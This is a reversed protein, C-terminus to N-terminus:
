KERDSIPSPYVRLIDRKARFVAYLPPRHLSFLFRSRHTWSRMRLRLTATCPMSLSTRCRISTLCCPWVPPRLRHHFSKMTQHDLASISDSLRQGTVAVATNTYVDFDSRGFFLGKISILLIIVRKFYARATGLSLSSNWSLSSPIM